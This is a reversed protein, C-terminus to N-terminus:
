KARTLLHGVFEDPDASHAAHERMSGYRGHFYLIEQAEDSNTASADHLYSEYRESGLLYSM